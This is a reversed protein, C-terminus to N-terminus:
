AGPWSSRCGPAPQPGSGGPAAPLRGRGPPARACSGRSLPPATSGNWPLSSPRDTRCGAQVWGPWPGGTASGCGGRRIRSPRFRHPGVDLIAHAPLDKRDVPLALRRGPVVGVPGPGPLGPGQVRGAPHPLGARGRRLRGGAGPSRCCTSPSAARRRTPISARRGSSCTWPGTPMPTGPWSPRSDRSNWSGARRARFGWAGRGRPASAVWDPVAAGKRDCGHRSPWPPRWPRARWGPM